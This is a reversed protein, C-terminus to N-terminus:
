GADLLEFWINIVKFLKVTVNGGQKDLLFGFM